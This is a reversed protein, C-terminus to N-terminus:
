RELHEWQRGEWIRESRSFGDRLTRTQQYFRSFLGYAQEVMAEDGQGMPVQEM